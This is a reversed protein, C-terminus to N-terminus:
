IMFECKTLGSIFCIFELFSKFKKFVNSMYIAWLSVTEWSSNKRHWLGALAFVDPQLVPPPPAAYGPTALQLHLRRLQERLGDDGEIAWLVDRWAIDSHHWITGQAVLRNVKKAVETQLSWVNPRCFADMQQYAMYDMADGTVAIIEEM